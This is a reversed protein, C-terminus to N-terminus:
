ATTRFYVHAADRDGALFDLSATAVTTGYAPAVLELGDGAVDYAYIGGEAPADATLPTPCVFLIRGGDASMTLFQANRACGSGDVTSRSVHRTTAGTPDLPNLRAYIQAIGAGDASTFAIASADDSVAHASAGGVYIGNIGRRHMGDGLTADAPMPRGDATASVLHVRAGARLYIQRVSEDPVEPTLARRTEFVVRELDPSAWGFTVHEPSTDPLTVGHTLWGFTGDPESRYLDASGGLGGPARPDDGQDDPDIPYLTELLMREYDESLTVPLWQDYAGANRGHTPPNIGVTSWGDATRRSIYNGTLSSGAPDSFVGTSTYAIGGGAARVAFPAFVPNGNKKPPSVLEYARCDPLHTAGQAARIEANPCDDAYAATSTLAATLCAVVVTWVARPARMRPQEPLAPRRWVSVPTM